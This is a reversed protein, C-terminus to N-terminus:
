KVANDIEDFVWPLLVVVSYAVVYKTVVKFISKTDGANVNKAVEVGCSIMCAWRSFVKVYSWFKAGLAPIGGVGAFVVSSPTTLYWFILALLIIVLKRIRKNRLIKSAESDSLQQNNSFLRKFSLDIDYVTKYNNIILIEM